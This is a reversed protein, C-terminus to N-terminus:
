QHKISAGYFRSFLKDYETKEHENLMNPSMMNKVHKCAGEGLRGAEKTDRLLRLAAHSMAKWDGDPVLYGSEGNIVVENQWDFDYAVLPIAALASEALARGMHPSLVMYANPLMNAIWEQSQNGAFIIKDAINLEQALNKLNELEEGDGAILAKFDEGADKLHRIVRVVHDVRKVTTLRSITMMFKKKELGLEHLFQESSAREELSLWHAKHILNGYRFVTSYEPKAGQKIAYRRNDENAGAILNFQPFVLREVIKEVWRAKFLRPMIPKKTIQYCIDYNAGVRIAVPRRTIRGLILGFIGLYYPDGVRIVAINDEIVKKSLSVLLCFQALLFNSLFLRRMMQYLGVTGEIFQQSDSVRYSQYVGLRESAGEARDAFAPCPHVSLVKEFYGGLERSLLAEELQRGQIMRYTYSTDLVLARRTRCHAKNKSKIFSYFYLFFLTFFVGISFFFVLLIDLFLLIKNKLSSM